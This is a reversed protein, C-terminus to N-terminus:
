WIWNMLSTSPHCYITLHMKKVHYQHHKESIVLDLEDSFNRPSLLLDCGRVVGGTRCPENDALLEADVM